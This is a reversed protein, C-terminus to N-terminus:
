LIVGEVVVATGYASSGFGTSGDQYFKEYNGLRSLDLADVGVEFDKIFM